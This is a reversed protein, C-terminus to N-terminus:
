LLYVVTWVFMVRAYYDHSYRQFIRNLTQLDDFSRPIRLQRRDDSATLAASM